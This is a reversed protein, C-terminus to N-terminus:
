KKEEHREKDKALSQSGSQSGLMKRPPEDPLLYLCGHLSCGHSLLLVPLEARDTVYPEAATALHASHSVTKLMFFQALLVQAGTDVLFM